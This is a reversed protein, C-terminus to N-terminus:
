LGIRGHQDGEKVQTRQGSFYAGLTEVAYTVKNLGSNNWYEGQRASVHILAISPDDQREPFWAKFPERWLEAIKQRDRVLEAQGSLTVFEDRKNQFTVLVETNSRIEETKPSDISTIFWLDCNEEVQAIAMPRGHLPTAGGHTVLMGTDFRTLLDHFKQLQETQTMM